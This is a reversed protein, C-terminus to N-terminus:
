CNAALQTYHLYFKEIPKGIIRLPYQLDVQPFNLSM